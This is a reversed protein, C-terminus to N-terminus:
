CPVGRSPEPENDMCGTPQVGHHGRVSSSNRRHTDPKQAAAPLSSEVCAMVTTEARAQWDATGLLYPPRHHPHHYHLITAKAKRGKKKM